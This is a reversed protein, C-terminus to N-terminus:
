IEKAIRTRLIDIIAPVDAVMAGWEGVPTPTMFHHEMGLKISM